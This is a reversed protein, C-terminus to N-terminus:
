KPNVNSKMQEYVGTKDTDARPMRNVSVVIAARWAFIAIAALLLIGAIHRTRPRARATNEPDMDANEIMKRIVFVGLFLLVLFGALTMIEGQMSRLLGLLHFGDATM